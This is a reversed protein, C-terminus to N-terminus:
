RFDEQKLVLVGNGAEEDFDRKERYVDYKGGKDLHFVGICAERKGHHLRTCSAARRM